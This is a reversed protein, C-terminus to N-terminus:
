NRPPRLLRDIAALDRRLEARSPWAAMTRMTFNVASISGEPAVMGAISHAGLHLDANMDSHSADQDHNHDDVTIQVSADIHPIANHWANLTAFTFMAFLAVFLALREISRPRPASVIARSVVPWGMDRRVLVPLARDVRNPIQIM